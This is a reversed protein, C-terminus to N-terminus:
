KRPAPSAKAPATPPKSLEATVAENLPKRAQPFGRNPYSQGAEVIPLLARYIPDARAAEGDYFARSAQLLYRPTSGASADRSFAITERVAPESLYRAFDQADERCAATCAPNFVLADVFIVPRTGGGLPASIVGPLPRGPKSNLIYFLRETYGMFGNAAGAGFAEESRTNEKYTGDICPNAASKDKCADVVPRLAAITAADVPATYAAAFGSPGHTDVWADLYVAPLTWSGKYNGVLAPRSPDVGALVQVLAAADGVGALGPSDAYIVNSCLYTPVGYTQEGVAVAARAAPVAGDSAVGVPQVWGRDVLEGLVITDLEVVQAADLVAADDLEELGGGGVGGDVVGDDDTLGEGGLQQEGALALDDHAVGHEHAAAIDEHIDVGLILDRIAM